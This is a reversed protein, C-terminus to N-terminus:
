VNNLKKLNNNISIKSLPNNIKSILSDSIHTYISTTKVSSHGLLRQILNIDTGSELLHTAFCHRILHTYVRKKIGSKEALNKIVENVSRESYMLSSQGNLIYEKSKYNRWYMELLPILDVSLGVQRDKKGKAQIINIVKRSRDIHIWKLNILESVRLGGSYLLSLIVKHKINECVNFMRQIEDVSLIIPLKKSSRPYEIKDFKHNQNLCKQYFLKIASLNAKHTNVEKFSSLYSVLENAPIKIPETYKSNYYALFKGLCSCYNEISNPSYKKYEM